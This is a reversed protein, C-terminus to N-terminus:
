EVCVTMVETKGVLTRAHLGIGHHKGGWDTSSWPKSVFMACWTTAAQLDFNSKQRAQGCLGLFRCAEGSKTYCFRAHNGQPPTKPEWAARRILKKVAQNFIKCPAWRHLWNIISPHKKGNYMFAGVTSLLRDTVLAMTVCSLLTTRFTKPSSMAEVWWGLEQMVAQCVRKIANLPPYSRNLLRLSLLRKRWYSEDWWLDINVKLHSCSVSQTQLSLGIVHLM